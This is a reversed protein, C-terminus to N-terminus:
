RLNAWSHSWGNMTKFACSADLDKGFVANSKWQYRWFNNSPLNSGQKLFNQNHKPINVVHYLTELQHPSPSWQHSYAHSLHSLISVIHQLVIRAWTVSSSDHRMKLAEHATQNTESFWSSSFVLGIPRAVLGPPRYMRKFLVILICQEDLTICSSSKHKWLILIM